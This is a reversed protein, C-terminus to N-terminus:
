EFRITEVAVTESQDTFGAILSANTWARDAPLFLYAKGDNDSMAIQNLHSNTFGNLANNRQLWAFVKPLAEFAHVEGRGDMVSAALLTYFGINAGIDFVCSKSKLLEKFLRVTGREYGEYGWFYWNRSLDDHLDLMLRLSRGQCNRVNVGVPKAPATEAAFFNYLRQRNKLSLHLNQIALRTLVRAAPKAGTLVFGARAIRKLNPHTEIVHNM